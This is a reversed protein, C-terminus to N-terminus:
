HKVKEHKEKEHAHKEHKDSKTKCVSSCCCRCCMLIGNYIWGFIVAVIFADLFGWLGGWLAGELGPAYGKYLSAVLHVFPLGYAYTSALWAIIMVSLGNIVGAAVALGGVCLRGCGCCGNNETHNQKTGCKLKFM